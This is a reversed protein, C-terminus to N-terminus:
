VRFRSNLQQALSGIKLPRFLPFIIWPVSLSLSPLLLDYGGACRGYLTTNSLFNLSSVSITLKGSGSILNISPAAGEPADADGLGGCGAAAFLFGFGLPFGWPFGLPFGLPFGWRYIINPKLLFLISRTRTAASVPATTDEILTSNQFM